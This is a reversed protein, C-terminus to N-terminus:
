VGILDSNAWSSVVPESRGDWSIVPYHSGNPGELWVRRRYWCGTMSQFEAMPSCSSVRVDRINGRIAESWESESITEWESGDQQKEFTTVYVASMCEGTELYQRLLDKAKDVIVYDDAFPHNIVASHFSDVVVGLARGGVLDRFVPWLREEAEMRWQLVEEPEEGTIMRAYPNVVGELLRSMRISDM